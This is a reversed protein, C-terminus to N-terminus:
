GGSLRKIQSLQTHGVQEGQEIEDSAKNTSLTMKPLGTLEESIKWVRKGLKRDTAIPMPNEEVTQNFFKGSTNQM